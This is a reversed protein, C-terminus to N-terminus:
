HVPVQKVLAMLDGCSQQLGYRFEAPREDGRFSGGEHGASASLVHEEGVELTPMVVRHNSVEGCAEDVSCPEAVEIGELLCKRVAGFHEHVSLRVAGDM